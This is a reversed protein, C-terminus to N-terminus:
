CTTAPFDTGESLLSGKIAAVQPLSSVDKGIDPGKASSALVQGKSDVIYAFGVQGVETDGLFDQLFRLDIEAVTVQRDSHSCRSRRSRSGTASIPRRM